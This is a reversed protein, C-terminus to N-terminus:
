RGLVIVLCGVLAHCFFIRWDLIVGHHLKGFKGGFNLLKSYIHQIAIYLRYFVRWLYIGGTGLAPM